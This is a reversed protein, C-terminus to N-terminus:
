FCYIPKYAGPKKQLENVRALADFQLELTSYWTDNPVVFLKDLKECIKDSVLVSTSQKKWIASLKAHLLRYIKKYHVNDYLVLGSDKTAVLNLKYVSIHLCNVIKKQQHM